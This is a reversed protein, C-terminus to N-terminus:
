LDWLASSRRWCNVSRIKRKAPKSENSQKEQPTSTAEEDDGSDSNFSYLRQIDDFVKSVQSGIVVHYQGTAELAQIVGDLEMLKNKNAKDPDKLVFRLRTACHMLSTVNKEGGINKVIQKSLEKYDM